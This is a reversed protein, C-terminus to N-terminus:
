DIRLSVSIFKKQYKREEHWLRYKCFLVCSHNGPKEFIVGVNIGLDPM